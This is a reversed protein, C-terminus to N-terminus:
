DTRPLAPALREAVKLLRGSGTVGPDAILRVVVAGRRFYAAQDSVQAEDGPGATREHGAERELAARAHAVTDFVLAEADAPPDESRWYLLRRCGAARLADAGGDVREELRNAPLDLTPSPAVVSPRRDSVGGATLAGRVLWATLLVLPAALALGVLWARGGRVM